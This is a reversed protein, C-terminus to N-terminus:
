IDFWFPSLF